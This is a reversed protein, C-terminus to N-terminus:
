RSALTSLLWKRSQGPWPKPRPKATRLSGPLAGVAPLTPSNKQPPAIPVANQTLGRLESNAIM